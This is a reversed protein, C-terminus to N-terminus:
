FATQAASGFINVLEERIMQAIDAPSAKSENLTVNMDDGVSAINIIISKSGGSTIGNATESMARGHGTAGANRSEKPTSPIKPTKPVKPPTAVAVTKTPDVDADNRHDWGAKGYFLAAKGHKEMKNLNGVYEALNAKQQADHAINIGTLDKSAQTVIETKFVAKAGEFDGNKIAEWSKGIRSFGEVSYQVFGELKKWAYQIWYWIETGVIKWQLVVNSAWAKIVEWLNRLSQAWYKNHNALHKIWMILGIIAVVVIGIPNASMVINLFEQAGAWVETSIGVANQVVELIGTSGLLELVGRRVHGLKSNSDFLSKTFNGLSGVAKSGMSVMGAGFGKVKQVGTDIGRVIGKFGTEIKTRTNLFQQGYQTLPATPMQLLSGTPIARVMKMEASLNRVALASQNITNTTINAANQINSFSSQAGVSATALASSLVDKLKLIIEVVNSM